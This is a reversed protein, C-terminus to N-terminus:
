DCKTLFDWLKAKQNPNFFLYNISFSSIIEINKGSFDTYTQKEERFQNITKKSEFLAQAADIGFVFIKEPNIFDIQKKLFPLCIATEIQTPARNGPTRWPLLSTLFCEDLNIALARLFNQLFDFTKGAFIEGKREDDDSPADIVIMYKAKQNGKPLITHNSTQKLSCAEFNKIAEILNDLSNAQLAIKKAVEIADVNSSMTSITKKPSIDELGFPKDSIIESIGSLIYFDLIEKANKM